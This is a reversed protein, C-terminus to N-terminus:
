TLQGRPSSKYVSRTIGHAQPSEMGDCAVSEMCSKTTIEPSAGQVFFGKIALRSSWPGGRCFCGMATDDQASPMKARLRVRPTGRFGYPKQPSFGTPRHSADPDGQPPLFPGTSGAKPAKEDTDDQAQRFGLVALIRRLTAADPIESSFTRNRKAGSLIVSYGCALQSVNQFLSVFVKM